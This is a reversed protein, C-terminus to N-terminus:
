GGRIAAPGGGQAGVGVEITAAFYAGAPVDCRDESCTQYGLMGKIAYKGPKTGAPVTLPIRWSVPREHYRQVPELPLGTQKIIPDDSAVAPGVKWGSLNPWPM